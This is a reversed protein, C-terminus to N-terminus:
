YAATTACFRLFGRRSLGSRRVAEYFTEAPM